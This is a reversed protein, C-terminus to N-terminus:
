SQALLRIFDEHATGFYNGTNYPVANFEFMIHLTCAPCFNTKGKEGGENSYDWYLVSINTTLNGCGDCKFKNQKEM